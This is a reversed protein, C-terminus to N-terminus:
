IGGIGRAEPEPLLHISAKHGHETCEYELYAISDGVRSPMHIFVGRDRSESQWSDDVAVIRHVGSRVVWRIETGPQVIVVEPRFGDETVEVVVPILMATPLPNPDNVELVLIVLAILSAMLAAALVGVIWGVRQRLLRRARRRRAGLFLRGTNQM